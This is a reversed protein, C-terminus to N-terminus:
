ISTRYRGLVYVDYGTPVDLAQTQMGDYPYLVIRDDGFDEQLLWLSALEASGGVTANACKMEAPLTLKVPMAALLVMHVIRDKTRMVVCSNYMSLKERFHTGDRTIVVRVATPYALMASNGKYTNQILELLDIPGNQPLRVIFSHDVVM